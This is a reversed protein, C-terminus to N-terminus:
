ASARGVSLCRMRSVGSRLGFAELAVQVGFVDALLAERQFAAVAEDRHEVHHDLARPPVLPTLSM